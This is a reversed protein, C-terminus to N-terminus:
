PRTENFIAPHRQVFDAVYASVTADLGGCFAEQAPGDLVGYVAFNSNFQRELAGRFMQQEERTLAGYQLRNVISAHGAKEVDTGCLERHSGKTAAFMAADLIDVPRDLLAVVQERTFQASVTSAFVLLAAVAAAVRIITRSM